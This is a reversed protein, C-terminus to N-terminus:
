ELLFTFEPLIIYLFTALALFLGFPLKSNRSFYGLLLGVGGVCGGLWTAWVFTKFIGEAGLFLGILAALKLDGGGMADKRFILKGLFAVVM